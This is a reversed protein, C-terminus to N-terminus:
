PLSRSSSYYAPRADLLTLRQPTLSIVCRRRLRRPTAPTFVRTSCENKSYECLTTYRRVPAGTLAGLSTGYRCNKTKLEQNQIRVNDNLISSEVNLITTASRPHYRSLM